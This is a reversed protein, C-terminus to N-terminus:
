RKVCHSAHEQKGYGSVYGCEECIVQVNAARLADEVAARVLAAVDDRTMEHRTRGMIAETIKALMECEHQNM